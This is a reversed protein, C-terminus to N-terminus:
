RGTDEPWLRRSQDLSQYQRKMFEFSDLNLKGQRMLQLVIFDSLHIAKDTSCLSKSAFRCESLSLPHAIAALEEEVVYGEVLLRAFIGLTLAMLPIGFLCYLGCFWAAGAPLIGDENVPPATLGGTALASVAFHTATIIDWGQDVIGWTIGLFIWLVFIIYIRKNENTFLDMMFDLPQAFTRSLFHRHHMFRSTPLIRHIGQFHDSFFEYRICGEQNRDYFSCVRQFEKETLVLGNDKLAERFEEYSIVGKEKRSVWNKPSIWLQQPNEGLFTKKLSDKELILRYVASSSRSVGELASQVMLVLAGGVCSAGLLIHVITFARSAVKTEEVDTCFGISM